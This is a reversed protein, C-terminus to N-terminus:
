HTGHKVLWPEWYNNIKLCKKNEFWVSNSAPTLGPLAKVETGGLIKFSVLYSGVVKQDHTSNM